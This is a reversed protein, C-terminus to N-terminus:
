CFDETAYIRGDRTYYVGLGEREWNKSLLNKRHEPSHMWQSVIGRALEKATRYRVVTGNDTRVRRDFYTYAINEGAGRICYYEARRYRDNPDAGSPSVHAFYGGKGMDASHNRAIDRLAGDFELPPLGHEARRENIGRHVYFEVWRRFQTRNPDTLRKPQDNPVDVVQVGRATDLTREGPVHYGAVYAGSFLVILLVLCLPVLSRTRM